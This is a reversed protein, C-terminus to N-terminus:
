LKQYWDAIARGIEHPHDEQIYHRGNGVFVAETQPFESQIQRAAKEGAIIAGPKAWLLLKPLHSTKLWAHYASVIEHVDAPEGDFPIERPWVAVPKRSQEDPYPAAYVAKEAATLKRSVMMPLMRRVFFNKKANMKWGKQPHRFRKFILRMMLPADAWRSPRTIAEMFVLGKVNGDHRRAYHFGLGSGWDHLILTVNKLNLQEIFAELYRSHTVFRYDLDPKGSKGMGILDVAICRGYPTLHPIVNRWLYSSTPNGHLFLIPDGEGEDVYHMRAGFVDLYRSEFPFDASIAEAAMM